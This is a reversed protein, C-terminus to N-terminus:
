GDLRKKTARSFAFGFHWRLPEAYFNFSWLRGNWVNTVVFGHRLLWRRWM